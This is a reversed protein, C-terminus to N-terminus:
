QQPPPPPPNLLTGKEMRWGEARRKLPPSRKVCLFPFPLFLVVESYTPNPNTPSRRAMNITIATIIGKEGKKGGRGNKSFVISHVLFWGLPLQYNGREEVCLNKPPLLFIIETIVRFTPPPVYNGVEGDRKRAEEGALNNQLTPM